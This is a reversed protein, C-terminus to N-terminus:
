ESASGEYYLKTGLMNVYTDYIGKEPNVVNVIGQKGVPSLIEFLFKDSKFSVVLSKPKFDVSLSGQSKIYDINYYIEGENLNRYNSNKCSFLTFILISATYIRSLRM